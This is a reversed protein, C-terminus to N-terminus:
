LAAVEQASLARGWIRMDDVDGVLRSAGNQDAGFQLPLGGCGDIPATGVNGTWAVAGDLYVALTGDTARTVALKVFRGSPVVAGTVRVVGGGIFRVRNDPTLDVLFGSATGIPIQDWLRRYRGSGSVRVQTYFTAAALRGLNAQAHSRVYRAGDLVLAPGDPGDAYLGGGVIDADQQRPSRDAIADGTEPNWDVLSADGTPAPPCPPPPTSKEVGITRAGLRKVATEPQGDLPSFAMGAVPAAVRELVYSRNGRVPIEIVGARTPAVVPTGGLSVGDVVRVDEGPWPNRVRLTETRAAQIGVYEPMGDRVQTSVRHGGETQVAGGANWDRPWASAVRVLGDYSQVLAEHLGVAVVGNWEMYFSRATTPNGGKAFYGFGNPFIQFDKTGQVLLPAVQDRLGLRAAWTADMGWDYRQPFVRQRFSARALESGPGGDDGFLGWPWVTEMEVNQANKTPEDTASWAIVEEGGRTVTRFPPIKPIAERLRRALEVDGRQSALDAVLPFLVRMAALDTAPDRTDWQNELANVHELHLLGDAGTVAVSLYFRAVDAMFPYAGDLFRRDNTYRYQRWMNMAVEPGTSLIRVVYRPASDVDCQIQGPYAGTGDYRITEPVCIGETGPWHERTWARLTELQDRYLRFYPANLSASDAGLNAATQMRLNFHWFHAPSWDSRDQFASFLNIVAGHSAPLPGRMSAANAYLEVARLTELYEASGDASRLQLPAVGAWFGHWWREHARILANGRERAPGRLAAKAAEGVDGGDYRPVAVVVRFSGDRRPRFNLRVTRADVTTATVDRGVATAAEVAGTGRGNEADSYTDALAITDRAAFTRPSRDPWLRLEATQPTDPDAGTVDVVFLDRGAHVLARATMGAGAQQLEGDHLDLRGRYDEARMMRDLGPIVLQGPSKLDPYLDVRNLQATFGDAAWVAAGLVGNGLPMAQFQRWSPGDLVVDSRGVLGGADAQLAGDRWATTPEAAVASGGLAAAWLVAGLMVAAVRLTRLM